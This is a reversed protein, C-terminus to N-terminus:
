RKPFEIARLGTRNPDAAIILVGSASPVAFTERPSAAPAHNTAVTSAREDKWVVSGDRGSLAFAFGERGALLLDLVRDGNV